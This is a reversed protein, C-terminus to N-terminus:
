AIPEILEIRPRGDPLRVEARVGYIKAILAPTLVEGPPGVAEVAGGSLCVVCDAYRGVLALDHMAAVVPVNRDAADAKVAEVVLMQHRLDLAATPEDLLLVRPRRLLAQALFALQRQGGSVSHLPREALPGLGFRDL